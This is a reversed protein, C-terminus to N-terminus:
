SIQIIFNTNLFYSQETLCKGQLKSINKGEKRLIDSIKTPSRSKGHISFSLRYQMEDRSVYIKVKSTSWYHDDNSIESTDQYRRWSQVDPNLCLEVDFDDFKTRYCLDDTRPRKLLLRAQLRIDFRATLRFLKNGRETFWRDYRILLATPFCM